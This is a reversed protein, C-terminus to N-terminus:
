EEMGVRLSSLKQPKLWKRGFESSMKGLRNTEDNDKTKISELRSLKVISDQGFM